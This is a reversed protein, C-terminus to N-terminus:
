NVKITIKIIINNSDKDKNKWLYICLVIYFLAIVIGIFAESDGRIIMHLAPLTGFVGGWIIGKHLLVAAIYFCGLWILIMSLAISVGTLATLLYFGTFLLAPIYGLYKKM